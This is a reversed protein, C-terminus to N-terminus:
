RQNKRLTTVAEWIAPFGQLDVSSDHSGNYPWDYYRLRVIKGRKLQELIANARQGHFLSDEDISFASNRDVRILEESGPYGSEGHSVSVAPGTWQDGWLVMLYPRAKSYIGTRGTLICTRADDM